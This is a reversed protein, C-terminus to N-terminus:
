CISLIKADVSEAVSEVFCRVLASSKNKTPKHFLCSLWYIIRLLHCRCSENANDRNDNPHSRIYETYNDPRTGHLFGKVMIPKLQVLSEASRVLSIPICHQILFLFSVHCQYFTFSKRRHYALAEVIPLSKNPLRVIRIRLHFEVAQQSFIEVLFQVIERVGRRGTGHRCIQM